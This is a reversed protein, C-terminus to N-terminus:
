PGQIAEFFHPPDISAYWEFVNKEPHFQTGFIPYDIGEFMAVFENGSRDFSTGLPRFMNKLEKLNKFSQPTYGKSHSLLAIKETSYYERIKKARKQDLVGLMKSKRIGKAMRINQTYYPHGDFHGLTDNALRECLGILEYGLCTGWFPVSNGDDNAEKV